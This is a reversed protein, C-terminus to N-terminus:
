CVETDPGRLAALEETTGVAVIHEGRVAVAEARPKADDVTWVVANQLILDAPSTEAETQDGCGAALVAALSVAITPTHM